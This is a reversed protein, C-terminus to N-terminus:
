FSLGERLFERAKEVETLVQDRKKGTIMSVEDSTFGELAFLVFSERISDPLHAVCQQLREAVEEREFIEEPNASTGDRVLDELHLLEDPQYFNLQEDEWPSEASAEEEVRAEERHDELDKIREKIRLRAVQFMWQELSLDVPRDHRHSTVEVFVEDVLAHPELIGPPMVGALVNHFLERRIYNEVKELNEQINDQLERASLESSETWTRLPEKRWLRERSLQSKFRKIRRRMESFAQVVSSTANDEIEEVRITRQPLNLILGTQFQNGRPLREINVTLDVVDSSFTRLMKSIKQSQRDILKHHNRLLDLNKHHIQVNM